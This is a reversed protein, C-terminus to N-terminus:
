VENILVDLKQSIQMAFLIHPMNRKQIPRQFPIEIYEYDFVVDYFSFRKVHIHRIISVKHSQLFIILSFIIAVV